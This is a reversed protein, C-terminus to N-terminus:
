ATVNTGHYGKLLTVGQAWKDAAEDVMKQATDIDGAEVAALYQTDREQFKVGDLEPSNLAKLRDANDDAKYEIVPASVNDLAMKLADSATDPIIVARVEDFGVAREPKAEFYETPMRSIDSMLKYLKKATDERINYYDKYGNLVRQIGATTGKRAAETLVEAARDLAIFHNREGKPAVENALESIKDM